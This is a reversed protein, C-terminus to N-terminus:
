QHDGAGKSKNTQSNISGNMPHEQSTKVTKPHKEIAERIIMRLFDASNLGRHKAEAKFWAYDYGDIYAGVQELGPKRQNPM